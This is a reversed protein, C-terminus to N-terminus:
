LTNNSINNKKGEYYRGLNIHKPHLFTEINGHKKTDQPTTTIKECFECKILKVFDNRKQM